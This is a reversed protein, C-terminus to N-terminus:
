RLMIERLPFRTDIIRKLNIPSLPRKTEDVIWQVIFSLPSSEFYQRSRYLVRLAHEDPILLGNDKADYGWLITSGGRYVTLGLLVRKIRDLHETNKFTPRPSKTILTIGHLM